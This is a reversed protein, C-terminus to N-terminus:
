DTSRKLARVNRAAGAGAGGAHFRLLLVLVVVVLTGFLLQLLLSGPRRVVRYGVLMTRMPVVIDAVGDNTFDAAIPSGVPAAPLEVTAHTEGGPGLVVLSRAGTALVLEPMGPAASLRELSPFVSELDPGVVHEAVFWANTPRFWNLVGDPGVSSVRGTSAFFVTDRARTAEGARARPLTLPAVVAANQSTMARM